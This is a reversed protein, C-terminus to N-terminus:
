AKRWFTPHEARRMLLRALKWEVPQEPHYNVPRFEASIQAEGREVAEALTSLQWGMPKLEAVIERMADRDATEGPQDDECWFAITNIAFTVNHAVARLSDPGFVSARSPDFHYAASDAIGALLKLMRVRLFDNPLTLAIQEAESLGALIDATM